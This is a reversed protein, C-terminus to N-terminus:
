HLVYPPPPPSKKEEAEEDGPALGEPMEGSMRFRLELGCLAEYLDRPSFCDRDFSAGYFLMAGDLKERVIALTGPNGRFAPSGPCPEAWDESELRVLAADWPGTRLPDSFIAFTWTKM